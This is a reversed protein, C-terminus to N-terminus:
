AVSLLAASRCVVCDVMVIWRCWRNRRGHASHPEAKVRRAIRAACARLWAPVTLKLSRAGGSTTSMVKADFAFRRSRPLM